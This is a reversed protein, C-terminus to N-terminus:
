RGTIGLEKLLADGLAAGDAAPAPKAAEERAKEVAAEEKRYRETMEAIRAERERALAMEEREALRLDVKSKEIIELQKKVDANSAVGPVSLAKACFDDVQAFLGGLNWPGDEFATEAPSPAGTAFRWMNDCAPCCVYNWLRAMCSGEAACGLLEAPQLAVPKGCRPCAVQEPVPTQCVHCKALSVSRPTIGILVNGAIESDPSGPQWLELFEGHPIRRHPGYFPDHVVVSEADVDLVVSYHGALSDMRLRHNVIARIGNERCSLLTVLPYRVQVAMAAFGRSQAHAVMLHTSSSLSGLRNTKSIQRWIEGQSLEEARRRGARREKGKSPAVPPSRRDRGRKRDGPVPDREALSRYVMALCAAGCMRNSRPDEQKVYPIVPCSGSTM